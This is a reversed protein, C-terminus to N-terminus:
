FKISGTGTFKYIRNGGACTVTPSGTTLTAARFANSYSIVVVGSGGSKSCYCGWTPCVAGGGGGGGTNTGGATAERRFSATLGRSAWGGRGGGATGCAGSISGYSFPYYMWNQGGGGGGGYSVSSGTISSSVGAGGNPAAVGTKGGITTFNSWTWSGGVGGAGGGSGSFYGERTPECNCYHVGEGGAYPTGSPNGWGGNCGYIGGGASTTGSFVSSQGATCQAGGGGVTVTYTTGCVPTMTSSKVDGGGGGGSSNCPTAYVVCHAGSGGGVVLYSVSTPIPPASSKGYANNLSIAGVAIGLLTRVTSDNLSIQTTGNGGLELEISQGATTGALSIPGSANLAM